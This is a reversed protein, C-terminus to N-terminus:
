DWEGEVPEYPEVEGSIIFGSEVVVDLVEVMPSQYTSKQNFM